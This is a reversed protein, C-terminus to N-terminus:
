EGANVFRTLALRRQADVVKEGLKLATGCRGQCGCRRLHDLHKDAAQELDGAMGKLIERLSPPRDTEATM